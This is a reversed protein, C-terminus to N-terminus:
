RPLRDSGGQRHMALQSWAEQLRHIVTSYSHGERMPTYWVFRLYRYVDAKFAAKHSPSAYIEDHPLVNHQLELCDVSEVVSVECLHLGVKTCGSKM